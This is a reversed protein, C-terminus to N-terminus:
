RTKREGDTRRVGMILLPRRLRGATQMMNNPVASMVTRRGRCAERDRRRVEHLQRSPHSQGPIRFWDELGCIRQRPLHWVLLQQATPGQDGSSRLELRGYRAALLWRARKDSVGPAPLGRIEPGVALRTLKLYLRLRRLVPLAVRDRRYRFRHERPRKRPLERAWTSSPLSAGASVGQASSPLVGGGRDRGQLTRGGVPRM